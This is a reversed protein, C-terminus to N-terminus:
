VAFFEYKIYHTYEKGRSILPKVFNQRNIADPFFQPELCFATLADYSGGRCKTNNLFNGTYLQLGPMDTYVDMKIGDGMATAAYEGDLAFNHDYGGHALKIQEDGDGVDQGIRKFNRFDFPTGAVDKVEGTPLSHADIPTYSRANIRLLTDGVSANTGSLFFFSHNTPAWFTDGTSDALYTIRLANGEVAYVVRMILNAPMGQDGDKSLLTFMVEGEGNDEGYFARKDFGKFGGHLTNEGDNCDLRYERGNLVFSGGSIRNAVRGITAGFYNNTSVYGDVSDYGLVLEKGDFRISQITAGYNIVTVELREGTITYASIQRGGVLGFSKKTVM